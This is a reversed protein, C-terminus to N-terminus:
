YTFFFFQSCIKTCNWFELKIKILKPYWIKVSDYFITSFRSNKNENLVNVIYWDRHFYCIFQNVRNKKKYFNLTRSKRTSNYRIIRIATWFQVSCAYYHKRTVLVTSRMHLEMRFLQQFLGLLPKILDPWTM